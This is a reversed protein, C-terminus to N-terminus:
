DENYVAFPAIDHVFVVGHDWDVKAILPDVVPLLCHRGDEQRLTVVDHAPTTFADAIRGLVAGDLLRAEFGTLDAGFPLGERPTTATQEVWVRAGKMAAVTDRPVGAGFELAAADGNVSVGALRCRLRNGAAFEVEVWELGEVQFPTPKVRLHALRKAVNVSAVSGICRGEPKQATM